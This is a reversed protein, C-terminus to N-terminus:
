VTSSGLILGKIWDAQHNAGLPESRNPRLHKVTRKQNGVSFRLLKTQESTSSPPEFWALSFRASLGVSTPKCIIVPFLLVIFGAAFGSALHGGDL